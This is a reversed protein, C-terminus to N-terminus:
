PPAALCPAEKPLGHQTVSVAGRMYQPWAEKLMAEQEAIWAPKSAVLADLYDRYATNRAREGSAMQWESRLRAVKYAEGLEREKEDIRSAIARLEHLVYDESTWEEETFRRVMYDGSRMLEAGAAEALSVPLGGDRARQEMRQLAYTGTARYVESGVRNTILWYWRGDVWPHWHVRFTSKEAHIRDLLATSPTGRDRLSGLAVHPM